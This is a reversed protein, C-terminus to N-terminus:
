ASAPRSTSASCWGLDALVAADQARGELHVHGTTIMRTASAPPTWGEPKWGTPPVRYGFAGGMMFVFYIAAMAIFTQWVGIRASPRARLSNM